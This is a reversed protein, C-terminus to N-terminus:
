RWRPRIETPRLDWRGRIATALAEVIAGPDTDISVTIADEDSAPMQLTAFQSDLLSLPMFHRQRKGM